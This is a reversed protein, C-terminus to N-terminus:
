RGREVCGEKIEEKSKIVPAWNLKEKAEIKLAEIAELFATFSKENTFHLDVVNSTVESKPDHAQAPGVPEVLEEFKFLALGQQPSSGFGFVIDGRDMTVKTQFSTPEEQVILSIPM